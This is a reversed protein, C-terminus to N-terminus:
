KLAKLAVLKAEQCTQCCGNKSISVLADTLTKITEKAAALERELNRAFETNVVSNNPWNNIEPKSEEDTRPTDSMM